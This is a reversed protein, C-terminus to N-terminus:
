STSPMTIKFRGHINADNRKTRAIKELEGWSKMLSSLFYLEVRKRNLNRQKTQSNNSLSRNIKNTTNTNHHPPIM